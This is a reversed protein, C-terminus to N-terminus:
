VFLRLFFPAWFLILALILLLDIRIVTRYRAREEDRADSMFVKVMLIDFPLAWVLLVVLGPVVQSPIIGWGHHDAGSFFVLPLCILAILAVTARVPGLAHLWTKWHAPRANNEVMSMTKHM